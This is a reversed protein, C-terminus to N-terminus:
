VSRAYFTDNVASLYHEHVKEDMGLPDSWKVNYQILNGEGLLGHLREKLITVAEKKELDTQITKPLLDLFRGVKSRDM